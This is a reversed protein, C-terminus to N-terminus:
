DLSFNELAANIKPEIASIIFEVQTTDEARVAFELRKKLRPSLDITVKRYEGTESIDIMRPRGGVQTQAALQPNHISDRMDRPRGGVQTQAALQPNHISDRMDRGPDRRLSM